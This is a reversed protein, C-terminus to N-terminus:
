RRLIQYKQSTTSTFRLLTLIRAAQTQSPLLLVRDVERHVKHGAHVDFHFRSRSRERRLQAEVSAHLKLVETVSANQVVNKATELSSSHLLM